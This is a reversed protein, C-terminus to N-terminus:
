MRCIKVFKLLIERCFDTPFYNTSLVLVASADTWIM